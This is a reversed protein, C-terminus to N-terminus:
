PKCYLFKRTLHTKPYLDDNTLAPVRTTDQALVWHHSSEASKRRLRVDAAAGPCPDQVGHWQAHGIILVRQGDWRSPLDGLFGDARAVAQRWSEGGPYPRDLHGLRGRHMEEAPMGNLQGYDCERLRWDYLV